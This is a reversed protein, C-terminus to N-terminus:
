IFSPETKEALLYQIASPLNCKTSKLPISLATSILWNSRCRVISTFAFLPTGNVNVGPASRNSDGGEVFLGDVCEQMPM